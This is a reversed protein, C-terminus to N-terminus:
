QDDFAVQGRIDACAAGLQDIARLTESVLNDLPEWVRENFSVRSDDVWVESVSDWKARATKQADYLQSRNAGFRM